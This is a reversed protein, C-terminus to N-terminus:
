ATTRARGPSGTTSSASVMPVVVFLTASYVASTSPSASATSSPTVFSCTYLSLSSITFWIFPTNLTFCASM